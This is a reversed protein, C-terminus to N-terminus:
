VTCRSLPSPHAIREASRTRKRSSCTPRLLPCSCTRLIRYLLPSSCSAGCRPHFPNESTLSLGIPLKFSLVAMRSAAAHVENALIPETGGKRRLMQEFEAADLKHQSTSSRSQWSIGESSVAALLGPGEGGNEGAAKCIARGVEFALVAGFSFGVFVYPKGGKLAGGIEAVLEHILVTPDTRCAEGMRTGRGPLAVEFVEYSPLLASWKQSSFVSGQGGRNGTWPFLILRRTASPKSGVCRMWKTTGTPKQGNTFNYYLRKENSATSLPLASAAAEPMRWAVKPARYGGPEWSSPLFLGASEFYAKADERSWHSMLQENIEPADISGVENRVSTLEALSLVMTGCCSEIQQTQIKDAALRRRSSTWRSGSVANRARSSSSSQHTALSASRTEEDEEDEDEQSPVKRRRM